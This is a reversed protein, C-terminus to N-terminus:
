IKAARRETLLKRRADVIGKVKSRMAAVLHDPAKHPSGASFPPQPDYEAFLQIAKATEEDTALAPRETYLTDGNLERGITINFPAGSSIILFPSLSIGWRARFLLLAQWM